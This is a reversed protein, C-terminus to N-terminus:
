LKLKSITREVVSKKDFVKEIHLRSEIGMNIKDQYSLNIFKKIKCYLDNIDKLNVLYGNKNHVVAEKCGYINSTILPRGMAGCELLTNAMGEHYSPLVFCHSKKIFPKVDKQFGYYNIINENQMTEILYSYDDDEIPGVIDFFVNSYEKRIMKAVALLEDIGKEKMIRGIFLFRLEGNNEPYECFNYEDLNVGSGNLKCARIEDIIKNSIFFHKNEDNQFFIVQSKKCAIRYLLVVIKKILNTDQFATGLGTINVAYPIKLIRAAIGGYINPKITYTIVISPKINRIIKLYNIFLKIDIFPNVGRRDIHTEIYVCGMNELLPVFEGYPLSIYLKTEQRILEEILEKRFKYLGIDSNALVLISNM